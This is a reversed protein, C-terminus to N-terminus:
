FVFRHTVKITSPVQTIASRWPWHQKGLLKTSAGRDVLMSTRPKLETWEQPLSSPGDVSRKTSVADTWTAPETGGPRTM